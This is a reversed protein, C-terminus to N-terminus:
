AWTSAEFRTVAEASCEAIATINRLELGPARAGIKSGPQPGVSALGLIGREASPATTWSFVNRARTIRVVDGDTKTAYGFFVGRHATMVLVARETPPVKTGRTTKKAAKTKTPAM